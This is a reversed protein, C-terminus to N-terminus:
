MIYKRPEDSTKQIINISAWMTYQRGHIKHGPTDQIPSKTEKEQVKLIIIKGLSTVSTDQELYLFIM